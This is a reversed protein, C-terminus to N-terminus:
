DGTRAIFAELAFLHIFQLLPEKRQELEELCLSALRALEEKDRDPLKEAQQQIVWDFERLAIHRVQADLPEPKSYDPKGNRCAYNQYRRLLEAVRYPFKSSIPPKYDPRDLPRRYRNDSEIFQLLELGAATEGQPNTFKWGWEITEGSRKFLTVALANRGL